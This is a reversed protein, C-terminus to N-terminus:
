SVWAFVIIMIRICTCPKILHMLLCSIYTYNCWGEITGKYINLLSVSKKNIYRKHMESKTETDHSVQGCQCAVCLVSTLRRVVSSPLNLFM